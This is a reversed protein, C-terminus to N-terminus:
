CTAFMEREDDYSDFLRPSAIRKSVLALKSELSHADLLWTNMGQGRAPSHVHAAEGSLLRRGSLFSSVRRHHVYYASLWSSTAIDLPKNTLREFAPRVVSFEPNDM